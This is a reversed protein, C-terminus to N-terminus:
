RSWEAQGGGQNMMLMMFM